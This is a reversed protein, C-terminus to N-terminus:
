TEPNGVPDREDLTVEEIGERLRDIEQQSIKRVNVRPVLRRQGDIDAPILWTDGEVAVLISESM